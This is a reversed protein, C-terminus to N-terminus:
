PILSANYTDDIVTIGGNREISLRKGTLIMKELGEAAEKMSVGM